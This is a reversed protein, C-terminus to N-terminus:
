CLRDLTTQTAVALTLRPLLRVVFGKTAVVVM